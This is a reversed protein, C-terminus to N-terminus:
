EIEFTSMCQKYPIHVWRYLAPRLHLSQDWQGYTDVTDLGAVKEIDMQDVSGAQYEHLSWNAKRGGGIKEDWAPKALEISTWNRGPLNLTNHNADPDNQTWGYRDSYSTIMDLSPQRPSENEESNGPGVIITKTSIVRPDGIYKNRDQTSPNRVAQKIYERDQLLDDVVKSYGEWLKDQTIYPSHTVRDYDQWYRQQDETPRTTEYPPNYAQKTYGYDYLSNDYRETTRRVPKRTSPPPDYWYKTTGYDQVPFYERPPSTPVRSMIERNEENNLSV